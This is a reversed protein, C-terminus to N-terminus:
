IDVPFAAPSNLSITGAAVGGAILVAMLVALIIVTRLGPKTRTQRENM